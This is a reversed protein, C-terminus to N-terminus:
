TIFFRLVSPKSGEVKQDPTLHAVTAGHGRRLIKININTKYNM